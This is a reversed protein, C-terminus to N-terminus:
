VLNRSFGSKWLSQNGRTHRRGLKLLFSGFCFPGKLPDTVLPVYRISDLSPFTYRECLELVCFM